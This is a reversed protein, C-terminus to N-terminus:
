RSQLAKGVTSLRAIAEAIEVIAQLPLRLVEERPFRRLGDQTCPRVDPLLSLSELGLECIAVSHRAQWQTFLRAAEIREDEPLEALHSFMGEPGKEEPAEGDDRITAPPMLGPPVPATLHAAQWGLTNLPRIVVRTADDPIVLSDPAEGARLAEIQEQTNVAQISEDCALVIERREDASACLKLAM